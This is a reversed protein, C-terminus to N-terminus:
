IAKAYHKDTHIRSQRDYRKGLLIFAMESWAMGGREALRELSQYHNARAHQRDAETPEWVFPGNLSEDRKGCRAHNQIPMTFLESGTHLAQPANEVPTKPAMM